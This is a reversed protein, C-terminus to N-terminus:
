YKNIYIKIEKHARTNQAGGCTRRHISQTLDSDGGLEAGPKQLQGFAVRRAGHLRAPDEASFQYCEGEVETFSRDRTCDNQCGM